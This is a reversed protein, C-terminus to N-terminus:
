ENTSNLGAFPCPKLHRVRCRGCSLVPSLPAALLRQSLVDAAFRLREPGLNHRRTRPASGYLARAEAYDMEAARNRPEPNKFLYFYLRYADYVWKCRQTDRPIHAPGDDRHAYVHAHLEGRRGASGEGVEAVAYFQGRFARAIADHFAQLNDPGYLNSADSTVLACVDAPTITFLYGNAGLGAALRTGPGDPKFARRARSTQHKPSRRFRNPAAEFDLPTAAPTRPYDGNEKSEFDLPAVPRHQEFARRSVACSDRLRGRVARHRM